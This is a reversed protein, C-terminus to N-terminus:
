TGLFLCYTSDNDMIPLFEDVPIEDIQMDVPGGTLKGQPSLTADNWFFFQMAKVCIEKQQNRDTLDIRPYAKHTGSLLVSVSETTEVGREAIRFSLARFIEQIEDESLNEFEKLELGKATTVMKEYRRLNEPLIGLPLLTCEGLLPIILTLPELNKTTLM